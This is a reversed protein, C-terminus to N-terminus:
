AEYRATSAAVDLCRLLLNIEPIGEATACPM